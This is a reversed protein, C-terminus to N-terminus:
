PGSLRSQLMEEIAKVHAAIPHEAQIRSKIEDRAYLITTHDRFFLKGIKPMSMGTHTVALYIAIHRAVILEKPSRRHSVLGRVAIDFYAAVLNRILRVKDRAAMIGGEKEKEIAHAAEAAAIIRNERAKRKAELVALVAQGERYAREMHSQAKIEIAAKRAAESERRRREKHAAIMAGRPDPGWRTAEDQIITLETSM